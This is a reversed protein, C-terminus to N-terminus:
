QGVVVTNSNLNNNISTSVSANGSMVGGGVTNNSSSNGGTNASSNVGNFVMGMNGVTVNATKSTDIKVINKSLYGTISNLGSNAADVSTQDALVNNTNMSNSLGTSVTANGTLVGLNGATNNNNQNGGTTTTATVNNTVTGFNHSNLYASRAAFIKCVNISTSGTTGNGCDVALAPAVALLLMGAGIAVGLINKKM